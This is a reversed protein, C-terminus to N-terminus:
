HRSACPRLDIIGLLIAAYALPAPLSSRSSSLRCDPFVAPLIRWAALILPVAALLACNLPVLFRSALALGVAAPIPHVPASILRDKSLFGPCCCGLGPRGRHSAISAASFRRHPFRPDPARPAKLRHWATAEPSFPSPVRLVFVWRFKVSASFAMKMFYFGVLM